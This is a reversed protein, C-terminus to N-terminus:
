IYWPHGLLYNVITRASYLCTMSHTNTHSHMYTPIDVVSLAPGMSLLLPGICIMGHTKNNNNSNNAQKHTHSHTYMRKNQKPTLIKKLFFVYFQTPLSLQPPDPFLQHPSLIHYFM